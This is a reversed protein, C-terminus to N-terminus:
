NKLTHGFYVFMLDCLIFHVVRDSSLSIISVATSVLQLVDTGTWQYHYLVFHATTNCYVPHLAGLTDETKHETKYGQDCTCEGSNWTGHTCRPEGGSSVTSATVEFGKFM